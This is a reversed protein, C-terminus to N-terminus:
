AMAFPMLTCGLESRLRPWAESALFRFEAVRAPSSGPAPVEPHVMVLGGAALGRLWDRMRSEPPQRTGFSYVGAFDANFSLGANRGQRLLGRAGLSTIVAAKIGRYQVATTSRIMPTGHSGSALEELLADRIQPLQHVHEHGDIFDPARGVLAAFAAFQRRIEARLAAGKVPRGVYSRLVWRRIAMREIRPQPQGLFSETLNLHLGLSVAPGHSLLARVATATAPGDVLLSAASIAGLAALATAAGSSASNRGVDDACVIVARRRSGGAHDPVRPCAAPVTSDLAAM